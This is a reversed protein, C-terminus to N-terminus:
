RLFNGLLIYIRMDDIEITRENTALTREEWCNEAGRRVTIQDRWKLRAVSITVTRPHRAATLAKQFPPLTLISPLLSINFPLTKTTNGIRAAIVPRIDLAKDHTGMGERKVWQHTPNNQQITPNANKKTSSTSISLHVSKTWYNRQLTLQPSSIAIFGIV